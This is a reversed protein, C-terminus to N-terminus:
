GHQKDIIESMWNKHFDFLEKSETITFNEIRTNNSYNASAEVSIKYKDSEFITVKSHLKYHFKINFNNYEQSVTVLQAYLATKRSKISVDVFFDIEIGQILYEKVLEIFDKNYSWTSIGIYKPQLRSVLVKLLEISGFNDSSILHYSTDKYIDKPFLEDLEEHRAVLISKHKDERSIHLRGKIQKSSNIEQQNFLHDFNDM